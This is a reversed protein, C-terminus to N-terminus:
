DKVDEMVLRVTTRVWVKIRLGTYGMSSTVAHSNDTEDGEGGHMVSGRGKEMPSSGLLHSM